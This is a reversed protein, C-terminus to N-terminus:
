RVLKGVFPEAPMADRTSDTLAVGVADNYSAWSIKVKGTVPRDLTLRITTPNLRRAAMIRRVGNGDTVHWGAIPPQAPQLPPAAVTFAVDIHTADSQSASQFRPGRGETGGYLAFKLLHWARTAEILAHAATKVHQGDGDNAMLDLDYLVPGAIINPDTDWADSQGIRVADFTERSERSGIIEALQWVMMKLPTNFGFDTQFKSRLAKLTTEYYDQTMGTTVADSEGQYWLVAKLGNAGSARVNALCELYNPGPASPDWGGGANPTLGTAGTGTTIFAVPVHQDRMIQTALLPWISFQDQLTSDTPDYAERWTNTQDFVGARLTPHSYFQPTRIRGEANSQGAVLFVDGIGVYRQRWNTAPNNRFRVELIGQGANQNRLAGSFKGGSPTATITQWVSGNFSAEIATPEGSYVGKVFIDAKGATDRQLVQYSKPSILRIWEVTTPNTDISFHKFSATSNDAYLGHKTARLNFTDTLQLRAIGNQKVTISSGNLKITLEDGDILGGQFEGLQVLAGSQKRFVQIFNLSARCFFYNDGNTARFALGQTQAGALGKITVRLNVDSLRAEVLAAGSGDNGTASLYAQYRRVGWRGSLQIFQQGTDAAPLVNPNDPAFFSAYVLDTQIKAAQAIFTAALFLIFLLAIQVKRKPDSSKNTKM